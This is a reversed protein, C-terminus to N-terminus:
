KINFYKIYKNYLNRYLADVVSRGTEMETYYQLQKMIAGKYKDTTKNWLAKWNIVNKLALRHSKM